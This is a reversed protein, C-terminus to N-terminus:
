SLIRFYLINKFIEHILMLYYVLLKNNIFMLLTFLLTTDPRPFENQLVRSYESKCGKLSPKINSYQYM